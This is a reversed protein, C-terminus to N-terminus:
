PPLTSLVARCSLLEGGALEVGEVVGRAGLRLSRAAASTRVQVGAKACADLLAAALMAPGGVPGPTALAHRVLVFLSTGPARPGVVTGALAPATLAVRLADM